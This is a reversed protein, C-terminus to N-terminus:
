DGTEKLSRVRGDVDSDVFLSIQAASRRATLGLLEM